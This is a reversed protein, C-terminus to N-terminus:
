FYYINTHPSEGGRLGLGFGGMAGELDLGLGGGRDLLRNYASLPM